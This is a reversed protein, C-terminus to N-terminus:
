EKKLIKGALDKMLSIDAGFETDLDHLLMGEFILEVFEDSFEIDSFNDEIYLNLLTFCNDLDELSLEGIHDITNLTFKATEKEAEIFKGADLLNTICRIIKDLREPFTYQYQELKQTM